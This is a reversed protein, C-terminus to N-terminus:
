AWEELKGVYGAERGLMEGACDRRVRQAPLLEVRPEALQGLFTRRLDEVGLGLRAVRTSGSTAKRASHHYPKRTDEGTVVSSEVSQPRLMELVDRNVPEPAV